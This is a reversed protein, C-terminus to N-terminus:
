HSFFSSCNNSRARQVQVKQVLPQVQVQQVLPASYAQQAVVQQVYPVQVQQFQVQQVVPVHVAQVAQVRQACGVNLAAVNANLAAINQRQVTEAFRANQRANANRFTNRLLQASASEAIVLGVCLAILMILLNKM